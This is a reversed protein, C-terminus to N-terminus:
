LYLKSLSAFPSHSLFTFINTQFRKWAILNPCSDLDFSRCYFIGLGGVGRGAFFFEHLSSPGSFFGQLPLPLVCFIGALQLLGVGMVKTITQGQFCYKRKTSNISYLTM